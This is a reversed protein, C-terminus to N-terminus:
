RQREPHGEPPLPSRLPLTRDPHQINHDLVELRQGVERFRKDVEETQKHILSAIAETQTHVLTTQRNLAEDVHARLEQQGAKVTANQSTLLVNQAQLDDLLKDIRGFLDGVRAQVRGETAALQEQGSKLTKDITGTRLWAVAGIICILMLLAVNPGTLGLKKERLDLSFGNGDAGPGQVRVEDTM